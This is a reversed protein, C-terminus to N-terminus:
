TNRKGIILMWFYRIIGQLAKRIAPPMCIFGLYLFGLIVLLPLLLRLNAILGIILTLLLSGLLVNLFFIWFPLPGSPESLEPSGCHRCALAEISNVEHCHSCVRVGFTRRCYQCYTPKGPSIRRCFSCYRMKIRWFLFSPM